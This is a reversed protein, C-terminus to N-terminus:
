GISSGVNLSCLSFQGPFAVKVELGDHSLQPSVQQAPESVELEAL